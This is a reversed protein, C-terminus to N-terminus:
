AAKQQLQSSASKWAEVSHGAEGSPGSFPMLNAAECEIDGSHYPHSVCAHFPSDSFGLFSALDQLPLWSCTDGLACVM